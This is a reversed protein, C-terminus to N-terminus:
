VFLLREFIVPNSSRQQRPPHIFGEVGHRAMRGTMWHRRGNPRRGRELDDGMYPMETGALSEGRVCNGRELQREHEGAGGCAMRVEEPADTPWRRGSAHDGGGKELKAVLSVVIMRAVDVNWVTIKRSAMEGM